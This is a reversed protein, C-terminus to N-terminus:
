SLIKRMIVATESPHRYFRKRRCIEEFGHKRYLMQAPVNSERVDLYMNLVGSSCAAEILSSLIASAYGRRRFDPHVAINLIQAEDVTVYMGGYGAMIGCHFAAFFAAGKMRLSESIANQSWPESFCRKEIVSAAYSDGDTM